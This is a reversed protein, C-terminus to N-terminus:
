RSGGAFPLRRSTGAATSPRDQLAEIRRKADQARERDWDDDNLLDAPAPTDRDIAVLAQKAGEAIRREAAIQQMSKRGRIPMTAKLIAINDALTKANAAREREAREAAQRAEPSWHKM